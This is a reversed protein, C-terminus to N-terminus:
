EGFAEVFRMLITAAQARTATGGPALTNGGVGQILENYVAWYKYTEAWSSLAARDQFSNLSFTSPVHVNGNIFRVYRHLMAAFQERTIESYPNFRGEHGQVIGHGHAWIVAYRYWAPASDPVDSFEPRFLVTPEGAMRWLITAVQARSLTQVPAFTTASTGQILDREYMFRVADVYWSEDSIDTFPLPEPPPPPATREWQAHLSWWSQTGDHAFVQRGGEPHTFGQKTLL